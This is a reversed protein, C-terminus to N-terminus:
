DHSRVEENFEKLFQEKLREAKALTKVSQRKKIGNRVVEVTYLQLHEDFFINKIGLKNRASPKVTEAKACYACKQQAGRVLDYVKVEHERGCKCKCIAFQQNQGNHNKKIVNLVTRDGFKEGILHSYDKFHRGM